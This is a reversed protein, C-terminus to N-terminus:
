EAQNSYQAPKGNRAPPENVEPKLQLMREERGRFM